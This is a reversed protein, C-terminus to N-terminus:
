DEEEQILYPTGDISLEFEAGDVVNANIRLMFDTPHLSYIFDILRNALKECDEKMFIGGSSCLPKGM